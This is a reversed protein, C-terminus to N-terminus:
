YHGLQKIFAPLDVKSMPIACEMVLKMALKPDLVGKTSVITEQIAIGFLIPWECPYDCYEKIMPLFFPWLHIVYNIPPDTLSHGEPLRPIGFAETGVTAATHRFIEGVDPVERLGLRQAAGATLSWVSHQNEVLPGNLADGFFYRKGDTPTAIIFVSEETKRGIKIQEERIVMQCSFGALSGLVGLYSDLHIGKDNKMLKMLRDNVAKAGFAPAAFPDTKKREEIIRKIAARQLEQPDRPTFM